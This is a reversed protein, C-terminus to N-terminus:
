VLRRNDPCVAAVAQVLLHVLTRDRAEIPSQVIYPDRGVREAAYQVVIEGPCGRRRHRAVVLRRVVDRIAKDNGSPGPVPQQTSMPRVDPVRTPAYSIMAAMPAPPM